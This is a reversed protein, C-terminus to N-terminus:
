IEPNANDHFGQIKKCLIIDSEIVDRHLSHDHTLPPAPGHLLLFNMSCHISVGQIQIGRIKITSFGGLKERLFSAMSCPIIVHCHHLCSHLFPPTTSPHPFLHLSHHLPTSYTRRVSSSGLWLADQRPPDHTYFKDIHEKRDNKSNRVDINCVHSFTHSSVSQVPFPLLKSLFEGQQQKWYPNLM